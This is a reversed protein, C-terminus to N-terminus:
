QARTCILCRFLSQLCEVQFLLKICFQKLALVFLSLYETLICLSNVSVGRYDLVNHGNCDGRPDQLLM